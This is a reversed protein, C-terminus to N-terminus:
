PSCRLSSTGRGYRVESLNTAGARLTLGFCDPASVPKGFEAAPGNGASSPYCSPQGHFKTRNQHRAHHGGPSQAECGPSRGGVVFFNLHQMPPRRAAFGGREVDDPLSEGLLAVGPFVYRHGAAAAAGRHGGQLRHDRRAIRRGGGLDEAVIRHVVRFGPLECVNRRQRRLAVPGFDNRGRELLEGGNVALPAGDGDVDMGHVPDPHVLREHLLDAAVSGFFKSSSIASRSLALFAPTM